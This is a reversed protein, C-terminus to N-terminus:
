RGPPKELQKKPLDRINGECAIKCKEYSAKATAFHKIKDEESIDDGFMDVKSMSIKVRQGIKGLEMQLLELQGALEVVDKTIDAVENLDIPM